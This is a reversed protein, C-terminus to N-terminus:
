KSSMSTFIPVDRGDGKRKLFLSSSKQTYGIMEPFFLNHTMKTVCIVISM